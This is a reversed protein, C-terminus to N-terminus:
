FGGGFVGGGNNANNGGFGGNGGPGIQLATVTADWLLTVGLVREMPLIIRDLVDYLNKLADVHVFVRDGPYLQYNTASNGKQTIGRWDVPMVLDCGSPDGNPRAVWIRDRTSLPPLGNLQAIADLVTENGTVPLRVVQQGSNAMEFIVYYTKSNYGIVDVVIEPKLLFQSLHAEIMAKAEALTLGAVHLCGYIGLNVTGDPRVLHEGRIQQVGRQQGMEVIVQVLKAVEPKLGARVRKEIAEKAEDITLGVVQVSGYAPGLRITGDSNVTYEGAPILLEPPFDQPLSGPALGIVLTDLAEVRYPPLPVTRLADIELIDPPEIIYPPLSVKALEKPAPYYCHEQLPACKCGVGALCFIALLGWTLCVQGRLRGTM